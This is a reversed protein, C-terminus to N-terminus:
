RWDLPNVNEFTEAIVRDVEEVAKRDAMGFVSRWGGPQSPEPTKVAKRRPKKPTRKRM